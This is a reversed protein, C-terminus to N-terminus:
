QGYRFSGRGKKSRDGTDMMDNSVSIMLGGQEQQQQQQRRGSNNKNKSRVAGNNPGLRLTLVCKNVLVGELASLAKEGEEREDFIVFGKGESRDTEDFFLTVNCSGYPSFVEKVDDQLLDYPLGEFDIRVGNSNNYNNYNNNNRSQKDEFKDHVWQDEASPRPGDNSGSNPRQYPGNNRRYNSINKRMYRSDSM